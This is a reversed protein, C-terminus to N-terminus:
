APGRQRTSLAERLPAPGCAYAPWSVGCCGRYSLSVLAPPKCRTQLCFPFDLDATAVTVQAPGRDHLFPLPEPVLALMDGASTVGM